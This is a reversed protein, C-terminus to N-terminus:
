NGEKKGFYGEDYTVSNKKMLGELSKQGQEPKVSKEITPKMEEFSKFGRADVVILHYGFQTKVPESIEGVPQKFAAEDFEPVTAGRSLGGLQGGNEGTGVDDSEAKAIDGFSAGGQIKAKLAKIKALAEDDTLDKQGERVPVRSGQFRILIHRTQAEEWENKHAEYFAKMAADDAPGEMLSQFMTQALVQDAQLALKTKVVDDQDLKKTRAEQALTKLEAIREALQRRGQESNAGSRQQEPLTEIIREFQSKTIKESGVTLVVPDASVAAQSWAVAACALLLVFKM